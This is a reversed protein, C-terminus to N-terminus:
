YNLKDLNSYKKNIDCFFKNPNEQEYFIMIEEGINFRNHQVSFISDNKYKIGSITYECEIYDVFCYEKLYDDVEEDICKTTINTIKGITMILQKSNKIITKNTYVSDYEDLLCSECCKLPNYKVLVKKNLPYDEYLLIAPINNVVSHIIDGNLNKYKYMVNYSCHYIDKSSHRHEIRSYNIIEGEVTETYNKYLKKPQCFIIYFLYIILLVHLISIFLILWFILKQYYTFSLGLFIMGVFIGVVNLILLIKNYYPQNDSDVLVYNDNLNNCIINISETDSYKSRRVKNKEKIRKVYIKNNVNFIVTKNSKHIRKDGKIIYGIYKNKENDM